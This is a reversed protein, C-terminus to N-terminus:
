ESKDEMIDIHQIERNDIKCRLIWSLECNSKYCFPIASDKDITNFHLFEFYKCDKCIDLSKVRQLFLFNKVM